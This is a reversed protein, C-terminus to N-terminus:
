CRRDPKSDTSDDNQKRSPKCLPRVLERASSFATTLGVLIAVLYIWAGLSFRESAWHALFLFLLPPTMISFGLQTLLFLGRWDTRSGKYPPRPQDM